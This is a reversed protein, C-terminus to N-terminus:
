PRDRHSKGYLNSFPQATFGHAFISMLITLTVVAYVIDFGGIDGVNHAVIL